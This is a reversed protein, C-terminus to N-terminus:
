GGAFILSLPHLKAVKKENVDLSAKRVNKM